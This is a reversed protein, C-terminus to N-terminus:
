LRYENGEDSSDDEDHVAYFDSYEQSFWSPHECFPRNEFDYRHGISTSLWGEEDSTLAFGQGGQFSLAVPLFVLGHLAGSVILSLWMRFYYM